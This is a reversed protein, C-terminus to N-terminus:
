KKIGWFRTDGLGPDCEFGYLSWAETRLALWLDEHSLNRYHLTNLGPCDGPSTALTGHEQRGPGACTLIMLGGPKLLRCMNTISRVWRADHELMETSIVIDFPPLKLLGVDCVIDVNKGAAVDVGTYDYGPFLFRSNGNVDQSGADLVSLPLAHNNRWIEDMVRQCFNHQQAHSM